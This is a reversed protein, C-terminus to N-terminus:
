PVSESDGSSLRRQRRRGEPVPRRVVHRERQIACSATSAYFSTSLCGSSEIVRWCQPSQSLFRIPYPSRAPANQNRPMSSLSAPRSRRVAARCAGRLRGRPEGSPMRRAIGGGPSLGTVCGVQRFNIRVRRTAFFPFASMSSIRAYWAPCHPRIPPSVNSASSNGTAEGVSDRSRYLSRNNAQRISSKLPRYRRWRGRSTM